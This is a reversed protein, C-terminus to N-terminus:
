SPTAQAVLVISIRQHVFPIDGTSVNVQTILYHLYRTGVRARSIPLYVVLGGTITTPHSDLGLYGFYLISAM